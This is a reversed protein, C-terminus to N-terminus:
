IDTRKETHRTLYWCPTYGLHPFLSHLCNQKEPDKFVYETKGNKQHIAYYPNVTVVGFVEGRLAIRSRVMLYDGGYVASALLLIVGVISRKM